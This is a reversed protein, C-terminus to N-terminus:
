GEEKFPLINTLLIGSKKQGTRCTFGEGNRCQYTYFGKQEEGLRSLLSMITGGHIICVVNIEERVGTKIKSFMKLFGELCRRDFEERDEGAPFPLRGESDIWRQYAEEKKLEEYRKGEFLGFDIERFEEIEMIEGYPYLAEATEMCRRMPSSFVFDAEPYLMRSKKRRLEEMGEPCLSEDTRGVYKRKKNGETMGHRLLTIQM